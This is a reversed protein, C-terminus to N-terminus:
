SGEHSGSPTRQQYPKALQQIREVEKQVLALEATNPALQLPNMEAERRLDRQHMAENFATQAKSKKDSQKASMYSSIDEM